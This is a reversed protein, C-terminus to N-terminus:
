LEEGEGEGEDDRGGHKERLETWRDSGRVIPQNVSLANRFLPHVNADAAIQAAAEDAKKLAIDLLERAQEPTYEAYKAYALLHGSQLFATARSPM